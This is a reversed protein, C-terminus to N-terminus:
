YQRNLHVLLKFDICYCQFLLYVKLKNELLPSPDEVSNDQGRQFLPMIAQWRSVYVAMVYFSDSVSILSSCLIGFGTQKVLVLTATDRPLSLVKSSRITKIFEPISVCPFCHKLLSVPLIPKGQSETTFFGGAFCSIGTQDRPWSSGWSYPMVVWELIRAQLIGHVFSGPLSYDIPDWLTPGLSPSLM